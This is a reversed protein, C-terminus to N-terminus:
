NDDQFHYIKLITIIWILLTIKKFLTTVAAIRDHTKRLNEDVNGKNVAQDIDTPNEWM